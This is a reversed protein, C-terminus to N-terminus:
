NMFIVTVHYYGKVNWCFAGFNIKHGGNQFPPIYRKWILDGYEFNPITCKYKLTSKHMTNKFVYLYVSPLFVDISGHSGSTSRKNQGLSIIDQHKHM